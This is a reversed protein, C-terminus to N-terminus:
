IQMNKVRSYNNNKEKENYKKDLKILAEKVNIWYRQLVSGDEELVENELVGYSHQITKASGINKKDCTLLVQDIGKEDCFKLALYLQYANYGKRRETPRVSYGIHGAHELLHKNLMLRINIMGILKNDEERILMFTEAPVKTETPIRKRSNEIKLLWADYDNIYDDLGGTGNIASHYEIFEKIYEIAQKEYEKTPRILKLKEM